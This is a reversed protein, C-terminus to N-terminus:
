QQWIDTEEERRLVEGLKPSLRKKSEVNQPTQGLKEQPLDHMLHMDLHAIQVTVTRQDGSGRRKRVVEFTLVEGWFESASYSTLSNASSLLAKPLEVLVSM